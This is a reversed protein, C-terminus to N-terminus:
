SFDNSSSFRLGDSYFDANTYDTFKYGESKLLDILESNCTYRVETPHKQHYTGCDLAEKTEGAINTWTTDLADKIFEEKDQIDHYEDYVIVNDRRIFEFIGEKTLPYLYRLEGKDKVYFRVGNVEELHGKPIVYVNPNWLFKWGGSRKGLHVVGGSRKGDIDINYKGYLERCKEEVAEFNDSDILDKLIQKEPTAPIIRAYFNTGM